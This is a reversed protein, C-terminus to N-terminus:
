HKRKVLLVRQLSAWTALDVPKDASAINRSLGVSDDLLDQLPDSEGRTSHIAGQTLPTLDLPKYSVFVKLVDTVFSRGRPVFTSFSHSLTLQPKIVIDAGIQTPYAVSISGDSSLDLIVVYLDRDSNNTLTATIEDGETVGMDPKGVRAVPDRTQQGALKFNVDIGNQPNRISLVNYWKAWMQLQQLLKNVAQPDAAAVPTSLTTSDAALILINAGTQRLQINCLTPRDVAQAYRINGLASQIQQLVPSHDVGDLFVRAKASVYHHEREVARSSPAVKGGPLMSAESTFASVTLLQVRGTPREPPAFRKSGPPYIDFTSGVTAGEADGVNLTVHHPDLLSPSAPIYTGALSSGDAFVHQDAEAGELAPHQGPFYATVNAIVPDMIDRYTVGARATRLQRTLFYTLAGHDHGDAFQEFANEKSTAASIFAFRPTTSDAPAASVGRMATAVPPPIDRTDTPIFRVRAGRVLTGSHCSDLIVTIDPTKAALQVLATHFEAGSIDFVKGELDRSDYPVISEDLGNPMKGTVDKMQSGHGSYHIVIIDGPKAKDILHTHIANMIGAHTAQADKLVLINEPAFEFKGVLVQRMDEVDNLSGELPSIREPYKYNNIGILLARKTPTGASASTQSVPQTYAHVAAAANQLLVVGLWLFLAASALAIAIRRARNM